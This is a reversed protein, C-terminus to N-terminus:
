KWWNENEIKLSKPNPKYTFLIDRYTQWGKKLYKDSPSFEGAGIDFGKVSLPVRYDGWNAIKSIKSNYMTWNGIFANNFYGDSHANIDDYKLVNNKDFYFKSYLKGYLEGSHKQNKNEFFHYNAIILGTLKVKDKLENDVGFYNYKTQYIKEITIKGEFDDVVNKVKSKGKVFYEKHNKPNQKISILKIRLRECEDGIIGFIKSNETQTWIKSFDQNVFKRTELKLKPKEENLIKSIIQKEQSFLFNSFLILFVILKKM